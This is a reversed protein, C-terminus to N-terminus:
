QDKMETGVEHVAQLLFQYAAQRRRQLRSVEKKSAQFQQYAERYRQEAAMRDARAQTLKTDEAEFRNANEMLKQVATRGAGQAEAIIVPEPALQAAGAEVPVTQPIPVAVAGGNIAALLTDANFEM